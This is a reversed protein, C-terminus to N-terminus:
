VGLSATRERQSTITQAKMKQVSLGSAISNFVVRSSGLAKVGCCLLAHVGEDSGKEASQVVRAM